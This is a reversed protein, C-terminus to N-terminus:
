EENEKEQMLKKIEATVPDLEEDEVKPEEVFNDEFNRIEKIKEIAEEKSYGYVQMFYDAITARGENIRTTWLEEESSKDVPLKPESFRAFCKADETFYGPYFSNYVKAIVKHLRKFGAEFMRARKKRLELNDMEEVILKFGSDANGAADNKIRVSWDAAFDRVWKNVMDDIPMLSSSDPGKYEFYVSDGPPAQVTVVRSPGGVLTSEAPALRPLAENAIEVVEMTNTSGNTIDANTVVTQLKSWSAAYESDTVHLNYMDNINILDMPAEVFFGTRPTHTDYFQAIPIIGYTNEGSWTRITKKDKVVYDEILDKTFVRYGAEDDVDYTKYVLTLIEKNNPNTIVACNGRHLTDLILSNTDVDFQVLTIGTKLLRVVSDFNTFYEVWEVGELVELLKASQDEDPSDPDDTYVDLVPATDTFLLGSKETIMRTINRHRPIIGKKKWEKRGYNPDDLLARVHKDQEGDLYDLAKKAFRARDTNLIDLLKEIAM